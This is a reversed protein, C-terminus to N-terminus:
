TFLEMCLRQLLLKYISVNQMMLALGLKGLLTALGQPFCADIIVPFSLSLPCPHSLKCPEQLTSKRHSGSAIESFIYKATKLIVVIGYFIFQRFWGFTM